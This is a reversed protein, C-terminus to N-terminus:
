AGEKRRRLLALGVLFGRSNRANTTLMCVVSVVLWGFEVHGGLFRIGTWLWAAGSLAALVVFTAVPGGDGGM